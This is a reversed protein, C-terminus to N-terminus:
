LYDQVEACFEPAKNVLVEYQKLYFKDSDNTKALREFVIDQLVRMEIVDTDLLLINKKRTTTSLFKSPIIPIGDITIAEIGWAFQTTDNIRQFENILGKIVTITQLDTVALKIRGGASEAKQVASRFHALSLNGGAVDVINNSTVWLNAIGAATSTGEQQGLLGVYAASNWPASTSDDAAAGTSQVVSGLLIAQEEIYRLNRTKNLVELNMSDVYEAAAAQMPGTVRGVQYCFGVNVAKRAYTDNSESLAADESQFGTTGMATLRNFDVSKGRTAVRPILEVLPTEKRTIDIIAPDVYVPILTASFGTINLAKTLTLDESLAKELYDMRKDGYAFSMERENGDNDGIRKTVWSSQRLGPSIVAGDGIGFIHKDIYDNYDTNGGFSAM